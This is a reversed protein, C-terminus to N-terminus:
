KKLPPWLQKGNRLFASCKSEKVVFNSELAEKPAYKSPGLVSRLHVFDELFHEQVAKLNEPSLCGCGVDYKKLVHSHHNTSNLKLMSLRKDVQRIKTELNGLM